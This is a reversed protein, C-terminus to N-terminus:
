QYFGLSNNIEVQILAEERTVYLVFDHRYRKVENNSGHVEFRYVFGATNFFLTVIKGDALSIEETM